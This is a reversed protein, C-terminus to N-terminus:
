ASFHAEAADGGHSQHCAEEGDGEGKRGKAPDEGISPGFEEVMEECPWQKDARQEELPPDSSHDACECDLDCVEHRHIVM